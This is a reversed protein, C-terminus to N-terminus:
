TGAKRFGWVWIVGGVISPLVVFTVLGCYILNNSGNDSVGVGVVHLFAKTITIVLNSYNAVIFLWSLRTKGQDGYRLMPMTFALGLLISGGMIGNLHAAIAAHPDADVVGTM